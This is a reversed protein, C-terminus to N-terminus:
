PRAAKLSMTERVRQVDRGVLQETDCRHALDVLLAGTPQASWAEDYATV